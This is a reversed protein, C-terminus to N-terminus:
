GEVSRALDKIEDYTLTEYHGDPTRDKGAENELDVEGFHGWKWPPDAYILSFPGVPATTKRAQAAIAQHKLARKHKSVETRLERHTWNEKVALDLWYQPDTLRAVERYYVWPPNSARADFPFKEAVRKYDRLTSYTLGTVKM